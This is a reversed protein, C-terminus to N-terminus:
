SVMFLQEIHEEAFSGFSGRVLETDKPILTRREM